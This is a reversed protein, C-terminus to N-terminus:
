VNQTKQLMEEAKLIGAPTGVDCWLGDYILGFVRRRALMLNWVKHLSFVQEPIQELDETRIIQAGSYILGPGREIRGAQDTFVFDGTGGHGRANEVRILLLLADMDSPMWCESLQALPNVGSWVADSNLTFVPGAGLLPLARRLGGGTELLTGREESMQVPSQTLHQAIQNSKHHANVVINAINAQVAIDLAHDILPKNAVRILPKPIDATLPQMRTGLGAAFLM